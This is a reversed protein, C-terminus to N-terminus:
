RRRLLAVVGLGLLLLSGPEPILCVNDVGFQSWSYAGGLRLMGVPEYDALADNYAADAAFKMDPLIPESGAYNHDVPASGIWIEGPHTYNFDIVVKVTVVGGIGGVPDVWDGGSSGAGTYTDKYGLKPGGSSKGEFWADIADVPSLTRPTTTDADYAYRYGLGAAKFMNVAPAGAVIEASFQFSNTPDINLFAYGGDPLYLSGTGDSPDPLAGGVRTRRSRPRATARWPGGRLPGTM